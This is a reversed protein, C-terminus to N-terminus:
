NKRIVAGETNIPIRFNSQSGLDCVLRRYLLARPWEIGPYGRSGSLM